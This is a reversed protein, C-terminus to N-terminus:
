RLGRAETATLESLLEVRVALMLGDVLGTVAGGGGGAGCGGGGAAAAPRGRGGGGGFTGRGGALEVEWLAAVVM